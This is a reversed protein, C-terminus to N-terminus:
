DHRRAEAAVAARLEEGSYAALDGAAFAEAMHTKTCGRWDLGHRLRNCAQAIRWASLGKTAACFTAHRSAEFDSLHTTRM